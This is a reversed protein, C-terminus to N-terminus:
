DGPFLKIVDPVFKSEYVFLIYSHTCIHTCVVIDSTLPPVYSCYLLELELLKTKSGETEESVVNTDRSHCVVYWSVLVANMQNTHTVATEHPMVM